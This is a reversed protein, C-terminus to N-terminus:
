SHKRTYWVLLDAVVCVAALWVIADIQEPTM